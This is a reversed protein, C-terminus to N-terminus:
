ASREVGCKISDRLEFLRYLFQRSVGILRRGLLGAVGGLRLRGRALRGFLRGLHNPQLRNLPAHRRRLLLYFDTLRILM